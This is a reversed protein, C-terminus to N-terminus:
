RACCASILYCLACRHLQRPAKTRRCWCGVGFVYGLDIAARVLPYSVQAVSMDREGNSKLGEVAAFARRAAAGLAKGIEGYDDSCHEAYFDDVAPGV